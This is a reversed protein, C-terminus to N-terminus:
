CTSLASGSRRRVLDSNSLLTGACVTRGAFGGLLYGLVAFPWHSCRQDCGTATSFWARQRLHFGGGYVAGGGLYIRCSWCAHCIPQSPRIGLGPRPAVRPLRALGCDVGVPLARAPH